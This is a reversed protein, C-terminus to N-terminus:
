VCVRLVQKMDDEAGFVAAFRDGGFKLWAEPGVGCADAVVKFNNDVGNAAHVIVDVEQDLNGWTQGYSLRDEGYFRVRGSPGILLTMIECPLLAISCEADATGVSGGYNFVDSRLLRMVLFHTKFRLEEGEQFLVAHFKIRFKDEALHRV